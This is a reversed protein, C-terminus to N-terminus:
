GQGRAEGASKRPFLGVLRPWAHERLGWLALCFFAICEWVLWLAPTPRWYMARGLVILVPLFVQVFVVKHTAYVLLSRRGLWDLFPVARDYGARVVMAAGALVAAQTGWVSLAGLPSRVVDYQTAYYELRDIQHPEGFVLWVVWAALGTLVAGRGLKVGEAHMRGMVFGLVGSGLFWHPRVDLRIPIQTAKGLGKEMADFWGDFPVGWSILQPAVLVMVWPLGGFRYATAILALVVMWCMIANFEVVPLALAISEAAMGVFVAFFLLMKRPYVEALATRDRRALNFTALALYLHSSLPTFLWSFLVLADSMPARFATALVYSFFQMMMLFICAGRVADFAHIRSSMSCQFADARASCSDIPSPSSARLFVVQGSADRRRHEVVSRGGLPPAMAKRQWLGCRPASSRVQGAM